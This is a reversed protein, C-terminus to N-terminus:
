VTGPDVAASPAVPEGDADFGILALHDANGPAAELIERLAERATEQGDFSDIMNGSSDMLMWDTVNAAIDPRM